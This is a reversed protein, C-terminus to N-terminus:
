KAFRIGAFVDYTTAPLSPSQHYRLWRWDIGHELLESRLKRTKEPGDGVFAKDREFSLLTFKVGLLALSRLYPLVQTQGLPDLMGNYSIFLARRGELGMAPRWRRSAVLALGISFFGNCVELLQLQM